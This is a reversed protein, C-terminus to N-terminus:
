IGLALLDDVRTKGHRYFVFYRGRIYDATDHVLNPLGEQGLSYDSLSEHRSSDPLDGARRKGAPTQM